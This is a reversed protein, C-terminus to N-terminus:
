GLAEAILEDAVESLIMENAEGSVREKGIELMIPVAFPTV